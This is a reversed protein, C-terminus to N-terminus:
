NHSMAAVVNYIHKCIKKNSLRWSTPFTESHGTHKMEDSSLKSLPLRSSIYEKLNAEIIAAAWGTTRYAIVVDWEYGHQMLRAELENTIGFKRAPLKRHQLIYVWGPLDKNFGM